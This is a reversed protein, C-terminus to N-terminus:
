VILAIKLAIPRAVSDFQIKINEIGQPGFAPIAVRALRRAACKTL